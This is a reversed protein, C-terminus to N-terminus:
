INHPRGIAHWSPRLRRREATEFRSLQGKGATVIIRDPPLGGNKSFGASM